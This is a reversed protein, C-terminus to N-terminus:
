CYHAHRFAFIVDAAFFISFCPADHPPPTIAHRFRLTDFAAAYAAYGDLTASTFCRCSLLMDAYHIEAYAAAHRLPPTFSRFAIMAHFYRSLMILSIADIL